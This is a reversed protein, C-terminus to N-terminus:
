KRKKRAGMWLLLFGILILVLSVWQSFRLHFWIPVPDGRLFEIGFRFAGYLVLYSGLVIGRGIGFVRRILVLIFFLLFLFFASILQTPVVKMGVSQLFIGFKKSPLGYCCGNFFCGIRGFGHALAVCPSILDFYQLVSKRHLKLYIVAFLVAAGFGGYWVRGAGLINVLSWWGKFSEPYQILYLYHSGILGAIISYFIIRDVLEVQLKYRHASLIACAWGCAIGVAAMLGYTYINFTFHGLTIRALIPHM